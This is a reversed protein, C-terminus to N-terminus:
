EEANLLEHVLFINSIQILFRFVLALGLQILFVFPLQGTGKDELSLLRKTLVQKERSLKRVEGVWGKKVYDQLLMSKEKIEKKLLTSTEGSTKSARFSKLSSSVSIYSYSGVSFLFLIVLLVKSAFNRFKSNFKYGALFILLLEFGLSLSFPDFGTQLEKEFFVRGEEVLFFTFLFCLGVSVLKFINKKFQVTDNKFCLASVFNFVGTNISHENHRIKYKATNTDRDDSVLRLKKLVISEEKFVDHKKLNDETVSIQLQGRHSHKSFFGKEELRKLTTRLSTIKVGSKKSIEEYTTTFSGSFGKSSNYLMNIIALQNPSLAKFDLNNSTNLIEEDEFFSPQTFIQTSLKYEGRLFDNKNQYIELHCYKLSESHQGWSYNIM